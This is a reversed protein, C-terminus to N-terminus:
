LKKKLFVNICVFYLFLVVWQSSLICQYMCLVFVICGVSIVFYMSVHLTCFCYLGSLHGFVNICVFYLYLVVWQSSLICQYMCLVFVICGVSIVLYMSVYLTCFCYLGSLHCFVNICVFYLFLVVWQSSLICQYMCLVFVICGVSIVFYMSVCLTCFCYLGSLHCFANICVFFLFLVVWQSSLICQYMCLVFVICGVSIVFYMSVCLTCFCYLGSLHCFVNICVFYLFLVVWQSSWICQYMCLVFVICGVSIVFYMSVYLTCFCYLGSLHCFVNFCVFYLFLVVWQSSLICQYVCLVFVICGVSIVFYMSVYLTCFCYLGSLHCFVNICVFYLFLVVWQSSLICQYVCLVFVICGVSIVFYMSVYLTCFCYLGSLHCFVNICVFYLFLVVWQSSLICQYMCLVFVICGVSIVFYMSVCLTCFCYWGSLHCFVNICVFYLFLVVWQSSLICQYVCLVFVICGVSTVFYMSVYLTCFCYLGSLHCFVNICVFYLFLVVWQSSLICQYMCLVFIICGVSIAFYMSVYLTCFCYLGSLHCFVNICVFYLFLVVWQSSLICQYMCLVFVICGVSIVFYMSVCLTCFCYLGSLHCYVNICVFYLFLVVWQSSLICQYMCLVFVICGVSIVFYMSVYLTCFCYLGSLHCFVNICVFYLFLVVWQSSLICQYICLVFVICGVSIVFYMSVYLTCFCYLGSFHCFVNICVFYLFLVVWQSSLICQYMCLVFVICGVSIVFYMSVCLTCFCYLGSLHCFVNICVFYLFLVVWQSSLICQYMCLVFVICGVSIVFYMSVYLTCFCYLGSLHCFVNICVFYLFLVVWQSSLICQYMCLVFVICGVSIVFYMSVYLTCFCYLGSLHCFVNICVFYLFLVVWQSPLICQYMCLVFVICGVSIVFYMSVCLTCFCYLGSLHCFVNICVFYLFLVVWQSSLICQYMCLVFVICGVSIVFYMSVYLTCFCYLGSLHCFVNICVFYLFLVVWQSSLICQYVCLVFVIGGVSIVFYMSVYLTCFCYLGSLHCFVNICVFYLFLVVWQPSLICQYMCLVFVICGVSIVFYMSVCLTCFCYLGSLHCFVNICVFCLFLVVWQSPLIRQYMCLVFVICGVSIVFYMSVYLTCFCYLGSLHCFVNICVFYLFLVVRQSSLICQYMCLVFVICGVSIVFYMSVCLTCFCYLGSLHCYVNICVFYLFLVVWQSSLICQYMCLVFVICGVSIVFYMSVYLTCFCYLGSLHCFVNICVFYLFLVVWQSSLICQYICLVFVICGVSIVFYMSVYLTCFCYLGSFHCFVNICVFYLFLVVWQSSLICQYMCLVFVICGVSIVFYMSVYLTCFCYLGSLHCFVNICVFYLFLVVWQSSLICQYMCLVFVICGVSIVFYMSIYLTCFCYLGSFHCFVNICVFYLFLVVWQFSLICQYMCLVFVICGVSIVFYMSVYLTCFCYLGSLHCFVNICVFYLFLVVWQSSLICQYMCLVFVICGVSIVFYM